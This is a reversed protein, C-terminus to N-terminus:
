QLNTWSRGPTIVQLRDVCGSNIGDCKGVVFLTTGSSGGFELNTPNPFTLRVRGIILGDPSLVVVQRGGHRTVWLNGNMDTKMGDIDISQSSDLISFDAFLRKGSITGSEVDADYVWIKQAVPTGGTNYSESVYLQSEDPSLDIGNTRGM